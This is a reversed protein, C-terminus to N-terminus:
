CYEVGATVVNYTKCFLDKLYKLFYTSLGQQVFRRVKVDYDERASL